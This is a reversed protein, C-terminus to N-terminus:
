SRAPTATDPYFEEQKKTQLRKAVAGAIATLVMPGVIALIKKM